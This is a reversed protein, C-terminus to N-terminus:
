PARSPWNPSGRPWGARPAGYVVDVDPTLAALLRPIEEPPNQLDDDITVCLPYRALRIGALVANHQGYNRMLNLAVLGPRVAVQREVEAWTGDGSGDNVLIVEYCCGIRSLAAELRELLQPLIEASNYLPIVISISEKM